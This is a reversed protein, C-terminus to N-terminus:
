AWSKRMGKLVPKSRSCVAILAAGSTSVPSATATAKRARKQFM